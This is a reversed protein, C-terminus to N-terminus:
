EKPKDTISEQVAVVSLNSRREGLSQVRRMLEALTLQALTEDSLTQAEIKDGYRARDRVKALWQLGAMGVRAADPDIKGDLADRTVDAVEGENMLAAVERARAYESCTAPERLRSVLTIPDCGVIGAIRVISAGDAVMQLAQETQEPSLKVPPRGMKRNAPLQKPRDQSDPVLEAPVSM